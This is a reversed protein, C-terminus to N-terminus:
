PHHFHHYHHHCSSSYSTLLELGIMVVLLGVIHLLQFSCDYIPFISIVIKIDYPLWITHLYVPPQLCCSNGLGRTRVGMKSWIHEVLWIMESNWWGSTMTSILLRVFACISMHMFIRVYPFGLFIITKWEVRFYTGM